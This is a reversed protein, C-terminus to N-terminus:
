STQFVVRGQYREVRRVSDSAKDETISDNVTECQEEMSEISTELDPMLRLKHIILSVDCEVGNDNEWACENNSVSISKTSRFHIILSVSIAFCHM